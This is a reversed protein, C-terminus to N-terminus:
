NEDEDDQVRERIAVPKPLTSTAIGAGRALGDHDFLPPPDEDENEPVHHLGPCAVGLRGSKDGCDFRKHYNM